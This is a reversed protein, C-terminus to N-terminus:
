FLNEKAFELGNGKIELRAFSLPRVLKLSLLQINCSNKFSNNEYPSAQCTQLFHAGYKIELSILILSARM